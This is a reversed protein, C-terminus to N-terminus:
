SDCSDNNLDLTNSYTSSSEWSNCSDNNLDLLMSTSSTELSDCSGNNLDLANINSPNKATVVKNNLDLANIKSEWSESSDNNLILHFVNINSLM